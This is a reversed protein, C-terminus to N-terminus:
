NVAEYDEIQIGYDENLIQQNMRFAGQGSGEPPRMYTDALDDIIKNQYINKATTQLSLSDPFTNQSLSDKLANSIMELDDYDPTDIMGDDVMDLLKNEVNDLTLRTTKADPLFGANLKEYLNPLKNIQELGVETLNGSGDNLDDLRSKADPTNPSELKTLLDSENKLIKEDFILRAGEDLDDQLIKAPFTNDDIKMGARDLESKVELMEDFQMDIDPDRGFKAIINEYELLKEDVMDNIANYTKQDPIIGLKLKNILNSPVAKAVTQAVPADRLKSLAGVVPDAVVAAAPLAGLTKVTQRKSLDINDPLAGTKPKILNKAYKAIGKTAPFAELGSLAMMGTAMGYDSPTEAKKFDRYADQAGFVLGAPTFDLVGLSKLITDADPRGAFDQALELARDNSMGLKSFGMQMLDQTKSRLDAM